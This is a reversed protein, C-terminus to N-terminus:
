WRYNIYWPNATQPVAGLQGSNSTFIMGPVKGELMQDITNMGPNNIDDMKLTTVASTLKSRDITQYGTVIVDNLAAVNEHMVININSRDVIVKKQKMGIFSFCLVDQENVEIRYNGESNTVATGKKGMVTIAVGPLPETGEDTVHGVVVIKKANTNKKRIIACDGDWVVELGLQKCLRSMFSAVTENKASITVKKGKLLDANYVYTFKTKGQVSELVHFVDVNNYTGSFRQQQSWATHLSCCVLALVLFLRRGKTICGPLISFHSKKM